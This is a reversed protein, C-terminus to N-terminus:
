LAPCRGLLEDLKAAEALLGGDVLQKRAGKAALRAESFRRQEILWEVINVTVRAACRPLSLAQFARRVKYLESVAKRVKGADHLMVAALQDCYVVSVRSGLHEFERRARALSEAGEPKQLKVACIAHNFLNAAVTFDDLLDGGEILSEHFHPMARAFDRARILLGGYIARAKASALRNKWNTRLRVGAHEVIMLGLSQDGQQFLIQGLTLDLRAEDQRPAADLRRYLAKARLAARRARPFNSCRNMIEALERWADAELRLLSTRRARSRLRVRRVIMTALEGLIAARAPEHLSLTEAHRLLHRITAPRALPSTVAPLRGRDISDSHLKRITEWSSHPLSPQALESLFLIVRPDDSRRM